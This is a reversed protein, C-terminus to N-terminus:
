RSLSPPSIEHVQQRCTLGEEAKCPSGPRSRSARTKGYAGAVASGMMSILRRTRQTGAIAAPGTASRAQSLKGVGANRASCINVIMTQASAYVLRVFAFM